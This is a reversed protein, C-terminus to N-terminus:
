ASRRPDPEHFAHVYTNRAFVQFPDEEVFLVPPNAYADRIRQVFPRLWTAAFEVPVFKLRPFRTVLEHGIISAIGDQV